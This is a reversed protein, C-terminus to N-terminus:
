LTKNSPNVAPRFNYRDPHIASWKMDNEATLSSFQRAVLFADAYAARLTATINPCSFRHHELQSQKM